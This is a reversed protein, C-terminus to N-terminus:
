VKDTYYVLSLGIMRNCRLNLIIGLICSAEGLDKKDFSVGKLARCSYPFDVKPESFIVM